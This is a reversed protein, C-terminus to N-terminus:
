MSLADLLSMVTMMPIGTGIIIGIADGVREDSM